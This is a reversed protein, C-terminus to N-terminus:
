IYLPFYVSVAHKIIASNNNQFVAFVSSMRAIRQVNSRILGSKTVKIKLELYVIVLFPFEAYGLVTASM